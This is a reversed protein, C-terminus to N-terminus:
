ECILGFWGPFVHLPFSLLFCSDFDLAYTFRSTPLPLSPSLSLQLVHRLSTVDVGSKKGQEEDENFIIRRLSQIGIRERINIEVKVISM